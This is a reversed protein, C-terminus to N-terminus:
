AHEYYEHKVTYWGTNRGSASEGVRCTIVTITCTDCQEGSIYVLRYKKGICKRGDQSSLSQVPTVNNVQSIYWGTNRGSASEGVRHHCHSYLHWMTWRLYIGVQIEERHVKEWGTIVTITCTDCQEGSIYVLRYKKGICKRGGQSSLSQVPTVNNVQSIYWGTNRGWASEGVRHHCHNYLHWMTWRLYIGVQIEERHVKEWGTIVTITCTDCQEGSIYVLRYKKEICKRGGQLHHCHNYLHWMTWRLYIGVQIEERHVKEWGAPSSLSQVPTVNNVQSIYWGTNRRSASEGMRHHCHNYLHWMTLRLYIGVQIEERHVKEWGTIVIVTCTDCQEASIYVLRYIKGICKRGDQMHHCHSYLHWMTWSLYIGVQIEEWHVKEWGTIVTITCTDCQEGSIYVLRYIKGICKRGDQLPHCHNYLHWMTWRLYIGVQIDERHVKEWGAPSSLSQVPTVNNVQSIYWGTNRGSTSEGMRHHCHNYLHWMTWRLYIGVQIEERHVKEWGTIVIITCTDCQEGSIYVLRYKKGICKRGGQLHHCHSFLHWMTWRLYIGVQIEERHVKEWGTIVTITCTDCQEGSIYVLRYKKGICKRGDQSSLSQVPTVNNVQSIYWGTNRGSASEGMRHHCHNYLHWMTWRLYIGVQIEERHVKEWGTIVTITCTDCQEGSIYVLRYKKGICKRGDQSSLSQVPTVNNLQSIYWGTYRGSASEGMRCTIVTVTCTDCQEASIYVLRYKKGICKRGGQSSLSQVPTVNNVQSIYWGTYRGSASEGMRCPIVTITCTDCQEGSISVLRYIKGICKRGGQLHHCHSYLHWMTWRLYIGVQIEERHVKEWGTIVTITCTDCQEGSIYVLRYKKGICKRGDQSSLSQVPTVNNVQSIYWGTNRGSASEGVRCTIVTVSCTDCQEGSIYVLRYKKGICKRGDQSSLSQVPTVNNVQSIYWGTNRGSASEGMRHHCHSYLHWMTWRLYIGVQIEERHVKEWGTIVTITCTDCQEGSIYVLRYKKGICKRGDQSSLSQVPTM